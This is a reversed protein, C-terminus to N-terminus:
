KIFRSHGRGYALKACAEGLHKCSVCVATNTKILCKLLLVKM